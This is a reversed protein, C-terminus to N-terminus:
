PTTAVGAQQISLLHKNFAEAPTKWGLTKRPRQNLAAAVAQLDRATHRSLDTGKPFYQRLLGNTNENSGRQWPSQPDCFYVQLGTDIRLQAHQAMEAGQDWTLSRRLQEPLTTIAEAIADRVAEAGRGTLAPGFSGPQAAFGRTSPRRRRSGRHSRV